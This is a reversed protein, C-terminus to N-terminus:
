GYASAPGESRVSHENIGLTGARSGRSRAGAASSMPIGSEEGKGPYRIVHRNRLRGHREKMISVGLHHLHPRDLELRLAVPLPLPRRACGDTLLLVTGQSGEGGAALQRVVRPWHALSFELLAGPVGRLDVVTVAFVRSRVIRLAVQAVAEPEAAVVLLRELCVGAQLVGPGYLSRSPDIFACWTEQGGQRVAQQQASRCAALALSTGWAAGGKLALEVVGGRLLGGDPLLADLDDSGLSLSVPSTNPQREDVGRRWVSRGFKGELKELLQESIAMAFVSCEILM